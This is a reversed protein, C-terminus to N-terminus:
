IAFIKINKSFKELGVLYLIKKAFVKYFIQSIQAATM